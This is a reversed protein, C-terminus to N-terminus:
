VGRTRGEDPGVAEGGNKKGARGREEKSRRGERLGRLERQESPRAGSTKMRRNAGPPREDRRTEAREESQERSRTSLGVRRGRGRRKTKKREDERV